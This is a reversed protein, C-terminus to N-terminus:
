WEVFLPKTMWGLKIVNFSWPLKDLLIDLTKREVILQWGFDNEKLLGDRQLFTQQFGSVSVEGIAKWMAAINEIFSQSGTIAELTLDLKQSIPEDLAWGCLIKNLALDYEPIDESGTVLFQTLLVAKERAEENIFNKDKILTLEEFYNTLFPWLLVIGANNVYMGQEKIENLYEEERKPDDKQVQAEEPQGAKVQEDKDMHLQESQVRHLQADKDGLNIGDDNTLKRRLKVQDSSINSASNKKSTKSAILGTKNKPSIEDISPVESDQLHTMVKNLQNSSAGFSSIVISVDIPVEPKKEKLLQHSAM